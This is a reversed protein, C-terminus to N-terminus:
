SMWVWALMFSLLIIIIGVVRHSSTISQKQFKYKYFYQLSLLIVIVAVTAVFRIAEETAM